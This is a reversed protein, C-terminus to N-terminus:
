RTTIYGRWQQLHDSDPRDLLFIGVFDKYPELFPFQGWEAWRPPTYAGAGEVMAKHWGNADDFWVECIRHFPNIRPDDLQRSSIFRTVEPNACIEPAFVRKFWEDGQEARAERPYKFLFLWRVNPGADTLRGAGKFDEEWFIPAFSFVGPHYGDRSGAWAGAQRLLTSPPQCTLELFDEPFEEGFALGAPMGGEKGQFINFLWYHETMFGNYTGFEKAGAPLPLAHYTAYKTCYPMFQSISEPVHQKYLWRMVKPRDNDSRINQLIFSRMPRFEPFYAM